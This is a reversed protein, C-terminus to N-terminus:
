NFTEHINITDLVKQNTGMGGITIWQDNIKLLARHDMTAQKNQSIHWTSTSLDYRWIKNDPSAPLKNYGIGDYNYPNDSGGIFVFQNSASDGMAAMRYRAAGTPHKVKRWDIVNVSQKSISGLFCAPEAAYTRRKDYHFDIKVGDCVMLKNGVIAGAQGFVPKGPFPSAQSWTNSQTDYMQVLNVNGDNHWGSILYIFRNQYTLAVTDDVPVPMPALATYIDDVVNYSYVDPVSIEAHDSAVTYGGFIYALPGISTAVSALRGTITHGSEKDIIPLSMPVSSKQQWHNSEVQYVYTKSHVDSHTKNPGLGAFSIIYQKNNAKVATVANNSVPEPLKTFEFSHSQFALLCIISPLYTNSNKILKM